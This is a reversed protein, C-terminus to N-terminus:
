KKEINTSTSTSTTPEIRQAQAAKYVASFDEDGHQELISKFLENAASTTPM